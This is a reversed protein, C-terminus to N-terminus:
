HLSYAAADSSTAAGALDGRGIFFDSRGQHLRKFLRTSRAAAVGSARICRFRVRDACVGADRRESHLCAGLFALGGGMPWGSRCVFGARRRYIISGSRSGPAFIASLTGAAVRHSYNGGAYLHGVAFVQANVIVLAVRRLLIVMIAPVALPAIFGGRQSSKKAPKRGAVKRRAQHLLFSHHLGTRMRRLRRRDAVAYRALIRITSGPNARGATWARRHGRRHGFLIWKNTPVFDRGDDHRESPTARSDDLTLLRAAIFASYLPLRGPLLLGCGGCVLYREATRWSSLLAASRAPELSAM